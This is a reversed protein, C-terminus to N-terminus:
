SEQGSWWKGQIQSVAALTATEARLISEGLTAARWGADIAREREQDTWGGEPGVLLAIEDLAPPLCNLLPPGGNEDLFLRASSSIGIAEAFGICPGILMPQLRRCQQGSEESIRVWRAERKPAARDLGAESRGAVVPVVATVGLESSKELMWEFRDFKILSALVTIRAGQRRAALEESLAFEVANKTLDAVSALYIRQRDSVEFQQGKEVRLVRRLHEATEGRTWARGARVEDVYFM